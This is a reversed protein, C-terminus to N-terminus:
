ALVGRLVRGRLDRGGTFGWKQASQPRLAEGETQSGRGTFAGEAGHARAEAGRARQNAELIGREGRRRPHM